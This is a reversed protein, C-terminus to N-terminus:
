SPILSDYGEREMDGQVLGWGSPLMKEGGGM